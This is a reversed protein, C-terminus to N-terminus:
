NGAKIQPRSGYAYDYAYGYGYGYGYSSKKADFKTLLVGLIRPAGVNLRRLAVRALNRGTGGAEIVIMTGAVASALLPADALGMIPPGDIVVIDFNARAEKLLLEVRSGALLEAPNPPLPGCPLFAMNPTETAQVLRALPAGGTLFNSLGASNEAKLTRHLSPNRLDGDILLVRLGLRAFNQAVASASTSKGESPRASTVLLSSPVGEDTSFQLATRVSYYSESFASRVDKMAEAPVMGRELKPVTGLLPLGLKREVDEPARISEDLYEILFALAVGLFLGILAATLVNKVRKPKSPGGPVQARDIISSSPNSIGAATSVEKYQNLLNEYQQRSTDVDRQLINFEISRANEDLFSGKLQAVRDKLAKEEGQAALYEAKLSDVVSQTETAIQRDLEDIQAQLRKQETAGPLYFAANNQYESMLQARQQKLTQIAANDLVEPLSSGGAQAQQYRQEAIIRKSQAEALSQNLSMLESGVLTQGTGTSGKDDPSPAVSIIGKQTAYDSLSREAEELKTKETAIREQLFERAYSSNDYRRDLGSAIFNEAVANVIKASAQPDPSDFTVKVLRSRQVPLVTLNSQIFGALQERLRSAPPRKGDPGPQGLGLAKLMAEDSTMNLDDVTRQALSRSKLIGHQTQFFEDSSGLDQSQMTNLEGVPAAERDIQLTVAATYIPTTLMTKVVGIAVCAVVAAAIVLWHKRLTRLYKQFDIGEEEQGEDGYWEYAGYGRSRDHVVVAGRNHVM